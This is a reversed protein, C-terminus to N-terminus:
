APGSRAKPLPRNPKRRPRRRVLDHFRTAIRLQRDVIASWYFAAELDGRTIAKTLQRLARFYVRDLEIM